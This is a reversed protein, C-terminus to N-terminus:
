VVPKTVYIGSSTKALPQGAPDTNSNRKALYAQLAALAIQIGIQVGTNGVPGIPHSPDFFPVAAAAQLAGVGIHALAAYLTKM